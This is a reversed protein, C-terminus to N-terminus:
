NQALLHPKWRLPPLLEAIGLGRLRHANDPGDTLHPLILQPIGAATAESTTGIGGHHIVADVHPLLSRISLKQFRKVNDPLPKPVL